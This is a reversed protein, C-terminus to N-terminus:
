PLRYPRLDANRAAPFWGRTRDPFASSTLLLRRQGHDADPSSQPEPPAPPAPTSLALGPSTAPDDPPRVYCGTHRWQITQSPRPSHPLRDATPPFRTASRPLARSDSGPGPTDSWPTPGHLLTRASPPAPSLR